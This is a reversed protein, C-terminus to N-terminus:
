KAAPREELEQPLCGFLPQRENKPQDIEGGPTKGAVFRQSDDDAVLRARPQAIRANKAPVMVPTEGVAGYDM